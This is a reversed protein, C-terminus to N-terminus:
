DELKEICKMLVLERNGDWPTIPWWFGDSFVVDPKKSYLEPLGKEISEIGYNIGLNGMARGVLLCLGYQHRAVKDTTGMQCNHKDILHLRLAEKYVELREEKSLERM